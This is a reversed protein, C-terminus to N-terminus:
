CDYVAFFQNREELKSKHVIQIPDKQTKINWQGGIKRFYQGREQFINTLNSIMRAFPQFMNVGGGM